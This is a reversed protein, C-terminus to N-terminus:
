PQLVPAPAPTPAPTTFSLIPTGPHQTALSELPHGDVAPRMLHLVMLAPEIERLLRLPELGDAAVAVEFGARELYLRFLGAIKPDDDVVLVRDRTKTPARLSGM